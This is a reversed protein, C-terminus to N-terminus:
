EIPVSPARAARPQLAVAVGAAAVIAMGLLALRDPVHGFVIASLLGAFLLQAYMLPALTSAPANRHAATFLFHGLGGFLGTAAFLLLQLPTPKLGGWSWPLALGFIVSGVLATWFLLAVTRETRVLIRSLLGYGASTAAACLALAIGVPDLGAGPRAILLIGCFGALAALWGRLGVSEGLVRGALVVVILPALFVIATSEAVPMRQLALGAFLSTAALCAARAIVLGTRQTRVMTRGHSPALLFFMLALHVIYRFAVILPVAYYGALYKTTADLCAFLFVGLVFLAVGRLSHTAAGTRAFERPGANDM